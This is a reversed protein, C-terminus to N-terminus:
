PLLRARYVRQANNDVSTDTIVATGTCEFSRDTLTQWVADNLMNKYELRYTNNATGPFSIVTDNGRRM